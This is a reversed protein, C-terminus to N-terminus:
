SDPTSQRYKRSWKFILPTVILTPALWPIFSMSPKVLDSPFNVVVFATLSAIYAACMRQLHMRIADPSSIGKIRYNKFDAAVMLLSLLGFVISVIGFSDSDILSRLGRFLLTLSFCMMFLSIMWDNINGMKGDRSAEIYRKGTVTLYLAFVGMVALFFNRSIYALGFSSFAVVLMGYYFVLGLKRHLRDGKRRILLFTGLLLSVSGAGIHLILLLDRM